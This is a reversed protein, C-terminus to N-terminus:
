PLIEEYAVGVGADGRLTVIQHHFGDLHGNELDAVFRQMGDRRMGVFMILAPRALKKHFLYYPSIVLSYRREDLVLLDISDLNAVLEDGFKTRDLAGSAVTVKGDEVRGNQLAHPTVALVSDFHRSWFLTAMGNRFCSIVVQRRAVGIRDLVAVLEAANEQTISMADSADDCGWARIPSEPPWPAAQRAGRKPM